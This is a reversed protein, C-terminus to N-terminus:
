EKRTVTMAAAQGAVIYSAGVELAHIQMLDSQTFGLGDTGPEGDSFHTITHREPALQAGDALTVQTEYPAPFELHEALKKAASMLTRARADKASFEGVIKHLASGMAADEIHTYIPERKDALTEEIYQNALAAVLEPTPLPCQRTQTALAHHGNITTDQESM